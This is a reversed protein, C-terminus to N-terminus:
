YHNSHMESLASAQNTYQNIAINLFIWPESLFPTWFKIRLRSTMGWITNQIIRLIPEFNM